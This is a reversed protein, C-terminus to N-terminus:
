YLTVDSYITIQPITSVLYVDMPQPPLRGLGGMDGLVKADVWACNFDNSPLPDVARSVREAM